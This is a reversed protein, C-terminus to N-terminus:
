VEEEDPDLDLEAPTTGRQLEALLWKNIHRYRLGEILVEFIPSVADPRFLTSCIFVSQTALIASM